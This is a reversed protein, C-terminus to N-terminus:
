ASFRWDLKRSPPVVSTTGKGFGARLMTKEAVESTTGEGEFLFM